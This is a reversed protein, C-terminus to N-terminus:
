VTMLRRAVAILARDRGPPGLLSLGVPVGDVTALPLSIQPCGSMSGICLLRGARNRVTEFMEEDFDLRPAVDSMSPM